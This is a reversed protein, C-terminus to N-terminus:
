QASSLLLGLARLVTITAEGPRLLCVTDAYDVQFCLSQKFRFCPLFRRCVWLASRCLNEKSNHATNTGEDQLTLSNLSRTRISLPRSLSCEIRLLLQPSTGLTCRLYTSRQFPVDTLGRSSALIFHGEPMDPTVLKFIKCNVLRPGVPSFLRFV